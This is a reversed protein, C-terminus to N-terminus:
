KFYNQCHKAFKIVNESMELKMQEIEKHMLPLTELARPIDDVDYAIGYKHLRSGEIWKEKTIEPDPVVISTCGCMAAQTSFFTHNDYCYFKESKNFIEALGELDRGREFSIHPSEPPHIFSTPTGKRITFYSGKRELGKNVFIDDHFERVELINEKHGLYDNYYYEMFWYILDSKSYTNMDEQKPMGLIWRVINKAHIPNYHIGECYIVISDDLNNLLEQPALPTDYESCLRFDHNGFVPTLYSEFGNKNLLDCLKHMVKIGGSGRDYDYTHIVFKKM